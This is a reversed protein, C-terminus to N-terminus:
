SPALAVAKSAAKQCTLDEPPQLAWFSAVIEPAQSSWGPIVELVQKAFGLLRRPQQLPAFTITEATLEENAQSLGECAKSILARLELLNALQGTLLLRNSSGCTSDPICEAACRCQSALSQLLEPLNRVVYM